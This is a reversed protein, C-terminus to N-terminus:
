SRREADGPRKESASAPTSGSPAAYWFLELRFNESESSQAPNGALEVRVVSMDPFTTSLGHLFRVYQLCAGRGVITIPVLDYQRGSAIRDTQVNDVQLECASLFGTLGAIRRNIHAASDLQVTGVALEQQVSTLREKVTAIAAQLASNKEQQTQLEHHLGATVCRQELLPGGTTLYWVLSALVCVATGVADIRLLSHHRFASLHM